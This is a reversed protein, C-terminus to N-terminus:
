LPSLRYTEKWARKPGDGYPEYRVVHYFLSGEERFFLRLDTLVTIRDKQEFREWLARTKGDGSLRAFTVVNGPGNRLFEEPELVTAFDGDFEHLSVQGTTQDQMVTLGVISCGKWPYGDRLCEVDTVRYNGTFGSFPHTMAAPAATLISALLSSIALIPFTM